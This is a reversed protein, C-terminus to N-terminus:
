HLERKDHIMGAQLLAAATRGYHGQLQWVLGSDLLHQFGDVTEDDDLEGGEYAMVFSVPDFKNETTRQM